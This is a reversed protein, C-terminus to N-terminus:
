QPARGLSDMRIRAQEANAGDPAQSLYRSYEDVAESTKGPEKELLLALNYHVVPLTDGSQLIALKYQALANKLDGKQKLVLGLANHALAHTGHAQDLAKQFCKEAGALDGTARLAQGLNYEAAPFHETQKSIAQKYAAIADRFRRQKALTFGLNNWAVANRAGSASTVVKRFESEAEAFKRQSLLDFGLSFHDDSEQPLGLEKIKRRTGEAYSPVTEYRLSKQYAALAAPMDNRAQEVLGLNFYAAAYNKKLEVAKKIEREAEEFHRTRLYCLGLNNYAQPFNKDLAIAKKYHTLAQQFDEDRNPGGSFTARDRYVSGLNTHVEADEGGNIGLVQEYYVIAQDYNGKRYMTSGLNNLSPLFEPNIDLAKKFEGAGELLQNQRLYCIGMLNHADPNDPEMSIAEQYLKAAEQLRGEDMDQDAMKLLEVVAQSRGFVVPSSLLLLAASLLGVKQLQTSLSMKFDVVHGYSFSLEALRRQHSEDPQWYFRVAWQRVIRSGAHIPTFLRIASTRGSYREATM